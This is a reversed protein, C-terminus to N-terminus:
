IRSPPRSSPLDEFTFSRITGNSRFCSLIGLFLHVNRSFLDLRISRASQTDEDVGYGMAIRRALIEGINYDQNARRVKRKVAPKEVPKLNYTKNKIADMVAGSLDMM